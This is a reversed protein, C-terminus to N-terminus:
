MIQIYMESANLFSNSLRFLPANLTLIKEKIKKLVIPTFILGIPTSKCLQYRKKIM